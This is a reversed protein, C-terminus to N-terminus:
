VLDVIEVFAREYCEINCFQQVWKQGSRGMRRSLEPSELFQMMCDALAQQNGSEALLGGGSARTIESTGAADTAITPVGLAWSEMLVMGFSESESPMVTLSLAAMAAPMERAPVYGIFHTRDSLNFEKCVRELYERYAVGAQSGDDAGIIVLHADSIFESVMAFAGIALEVRKGPHLRGVCGILRGETM